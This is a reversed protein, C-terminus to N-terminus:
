HAPRHGSMRDDTDQATSCSRTLVPVVFTTHLSQTALTHVTKFMQTIHARMLSTYRPEEPTCTHAVRFVCAHPPHALYRLLSTVLAVLATNAARRAARITRTRM